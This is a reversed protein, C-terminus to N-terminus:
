LIRRRFLTLGAGSAFLALAGAGRGMSRDGDSNAGAIELAYATTGAANAPAGYAMAETRAREAGAVIVAYKLGYDAATSKGADVLKSTGEASLRAAGAPLAKGGKAAKELGDALQGSGTAADGLGASLEDAGDSLQSTGDSLRTAGSSLKGLGTDLDGAGAAVKKAGADLEVTGAKLTGAGADLRNLGDLLTMGGEGILDIGGMVVDVGGRLTPQEPDFDTNRGVGGQVKSVVGNVLQSVGDDVLTLGQRLGPAKQGPAKQCYDTSSGVFSTNDLGCAVRVLGSSADSLKTKLDALGPSVKEGLGASIGGLGAQANTLDSVLVGLGGSVLGLYETCATDGACGKTAKALGVGGRLEDISGTSPALATDLKAKIQDAVGKSQDVGGKLLDLPGGASTAAALKTQLDMVGAALTEPTGVDGIGRLMSQIGAHLPKVETPLKGVKGYLEVLGEDLEELGGAVQSLGDLLSPAKASANGLGDKLLGAGSSLKGAGAALKGSGAALQGTGAKADGAGAALKGAGDYLTSAGAALKSAGPAAKGALGSNLKQAGDRLQILGAILTEAGDRLKLVNADIETAGATLEAGTDAGGKYSAAGAKFSPSDLPSVPLASITALPILGRNITASYGFESTPSGIPGFLTMTFSMKTQGRGDGAMNAEGSTVDVFNSPLLTTLSGVMPIVVKQTATVVKGTGDDYTVQQDRGTVNQVKYHVELRGSKGVVDGAKVNKGDLKYTASVQLPLKKDFDSVTRLRKEGKVTQKSVTNGDKIEFHSFGDLNRLKATSVPNQVTVTGNGQLALQEYVRAERLTGDANLRAQVTETNSIIVNDAALAPGSALVLVVPALLGAAGLRAIATSKRKV